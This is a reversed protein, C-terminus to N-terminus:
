FHTMKQKNNKLFIRKKRCPSHSKWFCFFLFFFISWNKVSSFAFIPGTKLEVAYFYIYIYIHIDTQTYFRHGCFWLETKFMKSETMQAERRAIVVVHEMGWRWAMSAIVEMLGCPGFLHMKHQEDGYLTQLCRWSSVLYLYSGILECSTWRSTFCALVIPTPWEHARGGCTHTEQKRNGVGM